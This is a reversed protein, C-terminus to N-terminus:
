VHIIANGRIVAHRASM